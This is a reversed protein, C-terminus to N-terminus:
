SSMQNFIKEYLSITEQASKEWSFRLINNYGLKVIESVDTSVVIKMGNAISEADNPNILLSSNNAIEKMSSQDSTIVPIGLSQAELIPFGFGEEKSILLLAKANQILPSKEDENFYGTLIVSNNLNNKQIFNKIEKYANGPKGALVLKYSNNSKNFIQFARLLTMLNKHQLLTGIFIFYQEPELNYKQLVLRATNVNVKTFTSFGNYITYINRDFIKRIEKTTQFSVSIIATSNEISSLIMKQKLFNFFYSYKFSNIEVVDHITVITTQKNNIFWSSPEHILDIKHKKVLGPIRLKTFLLYQFRLFARSIDFINVVIEHFNNNTLNFFHKNEKTTIIFYENTKDIQQLSDIIGILYETVGVKHKTSLITPILIRM